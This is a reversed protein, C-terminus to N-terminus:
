RWTCSRYRSESSRRSSMNLIKQQREDWVNMFGKLLASFGPIAKLAKLATRDSEHTYQEPNFAM